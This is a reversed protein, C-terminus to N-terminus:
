DHSRKAPVSENSVACLSLCLLRHGFSSRALGLRFCIAQPSFNRCLANQWISESQPLKAAWKDDPQEILTMLLGGTNLAQDLRAVSEVRTQGARGAWHWAAIAAPISGAVLWLVHPWFQPLLLRVVLVSAGFLLFFGALWEAARQLFEGLHVRSHYREIWDQIRMQTM